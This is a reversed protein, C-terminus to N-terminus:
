EQEMQSLFALMQEPVDSSVSKGEELKIDAEQFVERVSQKILQELSRRDEKELIAAVLYETKQGEPVDCM